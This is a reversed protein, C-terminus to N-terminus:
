SAFGAKQLDDLTLGAGARQTELYRRVYKGLIDTELNITDGVRCASLASNAWTFPIIHVTFAGSRLDAVTLSVGDCTVAGKPVIGALLDVDCSVELIWDAGSPSRNILRGTGDVHGTVIHGGMREDARLARELNLPAGAQKGRLNTKRLTEELVDCMFEGARVGTVTLCVGQVAVSEGVTLPQEWAPHRIVLAQGVGRTEMGALSGVRQILGTFM